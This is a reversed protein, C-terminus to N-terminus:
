LSLLKDAAAQSLLTKSVLFNVQDKVAQDSLNFASQLRFKELWVEVAADKKAAFVIDTYSDGLHNIFEPLSLITNKPLLEFTNETKNYKFGPGVNKGTVDIWETANERVFVTPKEEQETVTDIAGDLDYRVLAWKKM